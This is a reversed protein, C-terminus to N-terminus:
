LGPRRAPDSGRDQPAPITQSLAQAAAANDSQSDYYSDYKNTCNSCLDLPAGGHADRTDLSDSQNGCGQCSNSSM